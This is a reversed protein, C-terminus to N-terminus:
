EEYYTYTFVENLGTDNGDKDVGTRTITLVRNNDDFTYANSNKVYEDPFGPYDLELFDVLKKSGKGYLGSVTRRESNRLNAQPLNSVNLATASPLYTFTKTRVVNSGDLRTHVTINEDDVEATETTVEVGDEKYFRRIMYGDDDYEYGDYNDDEVSPDWLAKVIRGESDLIFVSEYEDSGVIETETLKGSVSYDYEITYIFGDEDVDVSVLRDEDDYTFEWTTVSGDDNISLSKILAPPIVPAGGGDDDGCSLVAMAMFLAMSLRILKKKM